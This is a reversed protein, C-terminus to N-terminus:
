AHSHQLTRSTPATKQAPSSRGRLQAGSADRQQSAAPHSGRPREDREPDRTLVQRAEEREGSSKRGGGRAQYHSKIRTEHSASATARAAAKCAEEDFPTARIPNWGSIAGLHKHARYLSRALFQTGPLREGSPLPPSPCSSEGKATAASPPAPAAPLHLRSAGKWPPRISLM